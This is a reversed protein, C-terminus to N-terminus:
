RVFCTSKHKICRHSVHGCACFMRVDPPVNDGRGPPPRPEVKVHSALFYTAAFSIRSTGDMPSGAGSAAGSGIEDSGGPGESTATGTQRHHTGASIASKTAPMTMRTSNATTQAVGNPM